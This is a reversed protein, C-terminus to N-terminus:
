NFLPLSPILILHESLERKHNSGAVVVLNINTFSPFILKLNFRNNTFFNLVLM